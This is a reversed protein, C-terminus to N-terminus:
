QETVKRWASRNISIYYIADDDYAKAIKTGNPLVDTTITIPTTTPLPLQSYYNADTVTVCTNAPFDKCNEGRTGTYNMYGRAPKFWDQNNVMMWMEGASDICIKIENNDVCKFCEITIPYEANEPCGGIRDAIIAYRGYPIDYATQGAEEDITYVRGYNKEEVWDTWGESTRFRRYITSGNLSNFDYLTQMQQVPAGSFSRSLVTTVLANDHPARIKDFNEPTNTAGTTLELAVNDTLYNLNGNYTGDFPTPMGWLRVTYMTAVNNADIADTTPHVIASKLVGESDRKCVTDPTPEVSGGGEGGQHENFYKLNVLDYDGIPPQARLTGNSSRKAITENEGDTSHTYTVQGGNEDTAYIKNIGDTRKVAEDIPVIKEKLEEIARELEKCYDCLNKIMEMYSLSDEFITPLIFRGKSKKNCM